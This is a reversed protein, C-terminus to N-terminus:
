ATICRSPPVNSSDDTMQVLELKIYHNNGVHAGPMERVLNDLMLSTIKNGAHVLEKMFVNWETTNRQATWYKNPYSDKSYLITLDLPLM